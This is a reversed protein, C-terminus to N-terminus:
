NDTLFSTTNIHAKRCCTIKLQNKGLIEKTKGVSVRGGTCKLELRVSNCIM